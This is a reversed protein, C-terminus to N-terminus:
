FVYSLSLGYEGYGIIPSFSLGGSEKPGGFVSDHFSNGVTYGIAIGMLAGAITDSFWHIEGKHSGVMSVMMYGVFPFGFAKIWINDPYYTALTMVTTMSVITHGSPWGWDVGGRMFGFRFERSLEKKDDNRSDGPHPRGTVAKLATSYGLAIMNAQIVACGAGLISRDNNIRGYLYLPVSALVPLSYGIFAAPAMVPHYEEHKSFYNHVRYDAKSQSLGYTSGFAALHLTGVPSFFTNFMNTGLNDFIGPNTYAESNVAEDSAFSNSFTFIFVFASFVLALLRKKMIVEKIIFNAM